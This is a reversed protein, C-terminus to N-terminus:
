LERGRHGGESASPTLITNSHAKKPYNSSRDTHHLAMGGPRTGAEGGTRAPWTTTCRGGRTRPTTKRTSGDSKKPSSNTQCEGCPTQGHRLPEPGLTTICRGKRAGLLSM